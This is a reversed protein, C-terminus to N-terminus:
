AASACIGVCSRRLFTSTRSVSCPKTVIRSLFLAHVSCVVIQVNVEYNNTGSKQIGQFTAGPYLCHSGRSRIRLRTIDMFPDLTYDHATKTSVATTVSRVPKPKPSSSASAPSTTAILLAPETRRRTPAMSARALRPSAPPTADSDDHEDEEAVPEEVFGGVHELVPVFVAGGLGDASEPPAQEPADDAHVAPACCTGDRPPAPRCRCTSCLQGEPVAPSSAPATTLLMGAAACGCTQPNAAQKAQANLEAV